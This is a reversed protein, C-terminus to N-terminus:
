DPMAAAANLGVFVHALSRPAYALAASERQYGCGKQLYLMRVDKFAERLQNSLSRTVDCDMWVKERGSSVRAAVQGSFDKLRCATVFADSVFDCLRQSRM